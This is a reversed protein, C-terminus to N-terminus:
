EISRAARHGEAFAAQLDRPAAADGILRVDPHGAALLEDHLGRNPENPTVLVVVDAPVERTRRSQLPRVLASAPRVEVLLHRTLLTFDGEYLYELAPIDRATSAVPLGGFGPLSTVYTLALGHGVLFEAVTVAEFHGVTDLVLASAAGDPVGGTLPPM